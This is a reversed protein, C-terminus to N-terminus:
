EVVTLKGAVVELKEALCESKGGDAPEIWLDYQGPAVVMDRGYGPASQASDARTAFRQTGVPTLLVLSAKPLGAGTVRVLGLHDAPQVEVPESVSLEKVMLVSRGTPPVWWLNFAEAKEAPPIRLSIGYQGARAVHEPRLAMAGTEARAIYICEMPPLQITPPLIKVTRGAGIKLKVATQAPRAVIELRRRLGEFVENLEAATQANYYKGKGAAAVEALSAREDNQVDFGIVNVGFSLKLRSVLTAAVAAPNGGCTEKGDSVLVLGCPADNRALEAGAAELAAAIPTSGLPQLAAVMSTLEAKGTADLEALARAVKVAECNLERDFGYVVLAVRLKEPLRSVLQAVVRKAETMKSEGDRTRESMSGSCDLVIAFDSVRPGGEVNTPTTTQGRLAALVASTAGAKKLENVQGADLTFRTPSAALRKLVDKEDLGLQLLQLVDNYTIPSPRSSANVAASTVTAARLADLVEGSAGAKKLRDVVASDATFDVGQAKLKAVIVADDVQLEVLKTLNPESLPKTAKTLQAQATAPGLDM